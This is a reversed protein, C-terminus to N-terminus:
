LKCINKKLPPLMYVSLCFVLSKDHSLILRLSFGNKEEETLISDFVNKQKKLMTLKIMVHIYSLRKFWKLTSIINRPMVTIDRFANEIQMFVSCRNDGVTGSLHFNGSSKVNRALRM